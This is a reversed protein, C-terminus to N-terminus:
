DSATKNLVYYKSVEGTLRMLHYVAIVNSFILTVCGPAGDTGDCIGGLLRQLEEGSGGSIDQTAFRAFFIFCSLVIWAVWLFFTAFPAYKLAFPLQFLHDLIPIYRTWQYSGELNSDGKTNSRSNIFVAIPLALGYVAVSVSFAFKQINEKDVSYVTGVGAVGDAYYSSTSDPSTNHKQIVQLIVLCVALELNLSLAFIDKAMIDWNSFLTRSPDQSPDQDDLFDEDKQDHCSPVEEDSSKLSDTEKSFLPRAPDQSPDLDGNFDGDKQDHCSPVEEDSSKLNDTEKM